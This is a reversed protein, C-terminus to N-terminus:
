APTTSAATGCEPCRGPTAHLDYGCAPCLGARMRRHQLRRQVFRCGAWGPIIAFAVAVVWLPFVIRHTTPTVVGYRYGFGLKNWISGSRGIVPPGAPRPGSSWGALVPPRAKLTDIASQGFLGDPSIRDHRACVIVTGHPVGISFVWRHRGDASRADVKVYDSVVVSRAWLVLTLVLLLASVTFCGSRLSRGMTM